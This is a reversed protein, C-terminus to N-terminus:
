ESYSCMVSAVDAQVAKLFPPLYHMHTTYDDVNSSSTTRNREQENFIYHKACAQVGASQMGKISAYAVEGALYPDAGAMEWNRGANPTREGNMGVPCSIRILTSGRSLHVRPRIEEGPGLAVNVGKGVFEKGMAEGRAYMLDRDFTSAINIGSPFVSVGDAFRVGAPSDELCLGKWNTGNIAPINGVCARGGTGKGQWGLGTTLSVKQEVTLNNARIFERAKAIAESWESGSGRTTGWPFPPSYSNNVGVSYPGLDTANPNWLPNTHNSFLPVYADATQNNSTSTGPNSSGSGPANPDSQDQAQTRSLLALGLVLLSTSFVM